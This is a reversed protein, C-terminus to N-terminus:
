PTIKFCVTLAFSLTLEVELGIDLEFHACLIIVKNAQILVANIAVTLNIHLVTTKLIRISYLM